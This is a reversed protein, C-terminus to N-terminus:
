IWWLEPVSGKQWVVIANQGFQRGLEVAKEVPIDLAWFSEEAPWNEQTGIGLGRRLLRCHPHLEMELSLNRWRNHWQDLPQSGPNWATLFAYREIGYEELQLQILHPHPQGIRINAGRDDMRILETWYSTNLYSEVLERDLLEPIDAADRIIIASKPMSAPLKKHTCYELHIGRCLVRKRYLM